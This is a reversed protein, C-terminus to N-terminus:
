NLNMCEFQVVMSHNVHLLSVFVSSFEGIQIEEIIMVIQEEDEQGFHFREDQPHGQPEFQQPIIEVAAINLVEVDKFESLESGSDVSNSCESIHAM